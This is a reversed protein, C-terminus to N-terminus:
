TPRTGKPVTQIIDCLPVLTLFFKLTKSFIKEAHKKTHTIHINYINIYNSPISLHLHFQIVTNTCYYLLRPHLPFFKVSLINIKYWKLFYWRKVMTNYKETLPNNKVLFRVLWPLFIYLWEVESMRFFWRVFGESFAWKVVFFGVGNKLWDIGLGAVFEGDVM